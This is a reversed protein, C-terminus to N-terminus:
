SIENLARIHKRYLKLLKGVPNKKYQKQLAAKAKAVIEAKSESLSSKELEQIKLTLESWADLMNYETETLTMFSGHQPKLNNDQIEKSESVNEMSADATCIRYSKGGSYRIYAILWKNSDIKRFASPGEVNEKGENTIHLKMKWNKDGLKDFTAKYIGREFGSAGERKFLVNYVSDCDNWTIDCDIVARGADYLVRPKTLDTFSKNSYSYYIKDYKDDPNTSLMSYYIFYGGQGNNYDKDWIVQPAWVRNIKTYDKFVDPSQPDSFIESGKRFDFSVSTWHVLDNSKLLDIGHNFWTRSKHNSMDTTVMVYGNNDPARYIFADRVGGEIEAVDQAKYVPQNNLLNHYILGGDEKKGIAYLTEEKDTAMHCYLYGYMNDDKALTVDYTYTGGDTEATISGAHICNKKPLKKVLMENGILTIYENMGKESSTFKWKIIKGDVEAPLHINNRMANFQHCVAKSIMYRLSTTDICSSKESPNQANINVQLALSAMALLPYAIKKM